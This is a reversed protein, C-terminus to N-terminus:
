EWEHVKGMTITKRVAGKLRWGNFPSNRGKSVFTETNVTLEQEPDIIVIDADAGKRLTGKSLGMIGSPVTTM